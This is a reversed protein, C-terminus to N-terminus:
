RIHEIEQDQTYNRWDPWQREINKVIKTNYAQLIQNASAGTRWAGDIALIIVDVWEELDYPEAEIEDLEKKIHNVIGKTRPGPGFTNTSWEKQDHLTDVTIASGYVPYNM